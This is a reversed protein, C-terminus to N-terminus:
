SLNENLISLWDIINSSYRIEESVESHGLKIKPFYTFQINNHIENHMCIQALVRQLFQTRKNYYTTALNKVWLLLLFALWGIELLKPLNTTTHCNIAITNKSNKSSWLNILKFNYSHIESFFIKVNEITPTLLVVFFIHGKVSSVQILISDSFFLNFTM